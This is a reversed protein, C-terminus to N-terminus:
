INWKMTWFFGIHSFLLSLFIKKQRKKTFAFERFFIKNNLEGKKKSNRGQQQFGSHTENNQYGAESKQSWSLKYRHNRKITKTILKEVM